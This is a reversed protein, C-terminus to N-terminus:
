ENVWYSKWSGFWVARTWPCHFLTHEISEPAENCFPCVSSSACKRKFLNAKCAIWNRVVKWMLISVKPMTPVFWLKNWMSKPPSYSVSAQHSSSAEVQNNEQHYGSKVTYKGSKNCSWVRRDGNKVLSIPIASVARVEEESICTFLKGLDWSQTEQNIFDVVKNWNCNPPPQSLIKRHPLCHM